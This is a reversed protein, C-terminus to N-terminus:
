AIGIPNYHYMEGEKKLIGMDALQEMINEVKETTCMCKNENQFCCKLNNNCCEGALIM